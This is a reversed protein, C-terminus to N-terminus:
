YKEINSTFLGAVMTSTQCISYDNDSDSGYFKTNFAECNSTLAELTIDHGGDDQANNIIRILEQEVNSSWMECLDDIMDSTLNDGDLDTAYYNNCYTLYNDRGMIGDGTPNYYGKIETFDDYGDGDTDINDISTGYLSEEEDELGDGDTDLGTISIQNTTTINSNLTHNVNTTVNTNINKVLNTNSIANIDSNDNQTSNSNATINNVNQNDNSTAVVLNTNESSDDNTYIFFYYGAAAGLIVLAIIFLLMRSFSRKPNPNINQPSAHVSPNPVNSGSPPNKIYSPIQIPM